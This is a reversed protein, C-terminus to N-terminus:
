RVTVYNIVEFIRDSISPEVDELTHREHPLMHCVASSTGGGVKGNRNKGFGEM